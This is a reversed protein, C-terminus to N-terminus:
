GLEETEPKEKIVEKLEKIKSGYAESLEKVDQAAADITEDVFKCVQASVLGSILNSGLWTGLCVLGKVQPPLLAGAISNVLMFTSGGAIFGAADKANQFVKEKDVKKM